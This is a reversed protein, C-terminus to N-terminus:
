DITVEESEVNINEEEELRKKYPIYGDDVAEPLEETGYANLNTRPGMIFDDGSNMVENVKKDLDEGNM